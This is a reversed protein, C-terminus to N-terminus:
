SDIMERLCINHMFLISQLKLYMLEFYNSCYLLSFIKELPDTHIIYLKRTYSCVVGMSSRVTFISGCFFSSLVHM